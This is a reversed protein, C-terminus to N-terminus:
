ENEKKKRSTFMVGAIIVGVGIVTFIITGVGGTTPLLTGPNNLVGVTNDGDQDVEGVTYNVHTAATDDKAIVVTVPASLANYGTPAAVETLYYTVAKLGKITVQGSAPTTVQNVKKVSIDSIEDNTAVRYTDATATAVLSIATGDNTASIEFVAGALQVKTAGDMTYKDIVIDYTYVKSIDPTSEGTGGTTPNNSYVVKAQNEGYGTTVANENVVAKYTVIIPDGENINTDNAVLGKLDTIAVTLNNEVPSATYDPATITYDNAQLSVGDITVTVNGAYTLGDSMTDVFNFTYSYDETMDPVESELKFTVTDGVQASGDDTFATGNDTSVTKDVTPYVSKLNVTNPNNAAAVNKIIADTGREATSGSAPLILYSGDELDAFTATGNTAAVTQATSTFDATNALYYVKAAKAFAVMDDSDDGIAAVYKFAKAPLTPDDTQTVGDLKSVFFGAWGDALEYTGNAGTKTFMPVITVNKTGLTDGTVNLTATGVASVSTVCLAFILMVAMLVALIRKTTKM